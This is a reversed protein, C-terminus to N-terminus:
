MNAGYYQVNERCVAAHTLHLRGGSPGIDGFRGTSPPPRLHSLLIKISHPWGQKERFARHKLEDKLFGPRVEGNDWIIFCNRAEIERLLISSAECADDYLRGVTRVVNEQETTLQWAM